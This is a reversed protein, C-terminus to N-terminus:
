DLSRYDFASRVGAVQNNRPPALRLTMTSRGSTGLESAPIYFCDRTTADYAAVWDITAATYRKTRRVKGNTLSHSCTKVEMRVGESRCHKVQVKELKGDRDVILDYDCDEGFPFAVGYGRAVLDAAVALEATDGRQKTPAM